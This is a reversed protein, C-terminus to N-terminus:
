DTGLQGAFCIWRSIIIHRFIHAPKELLAINNLRAKMAKPSMWVDLSLVPTDIRCIFYNNRETHVCGLVCVQIWGTAM